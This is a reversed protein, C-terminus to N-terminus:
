AHEELMGLLGLMKELIMPMPQYSDSGVRRDTRDTYFYLTTEVGDSYADIREGRDLLTVRRDNHQCPVVTAGVRKAAATLAAQSLDLEMRKSM